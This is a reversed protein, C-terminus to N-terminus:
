TASSVRFTKRFCIIIEKLNLVFISCFEIPAKWEVSRLPLIQGSVTTYKMLNSKRSLDKVGSTVTPKWPQSWCRFMLFWISLERTSRKRELLRDISFDARRTYSKHLLLTTPWVGTRLWLPIECIECKSDSFGGHKKNSAAGSFSSPQWHSSGIAFWPYCQYPM